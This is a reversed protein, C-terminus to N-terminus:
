KVIQMKMKAMTLQSQPRQGIVKVKLASSSHTLSFQPM